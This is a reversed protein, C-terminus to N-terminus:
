AIIRKAAQKCWVVFEVVTNAIDKVAWKILLMCLAITALTGALSLVAVVSLMAFELWNMDFGQKLQVAIIVCLAM